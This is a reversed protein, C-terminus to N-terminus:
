VRMWEKKSVEKDCARRKVRVGEKMMYVGEKM